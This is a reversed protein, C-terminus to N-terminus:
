CLGGDWWLTTGDEVPHLQYLGGLQKAVIRGLHMDILMVNPAMHTARLRMSAAAAALRPQMAFAHQIARCRTGSSHDEKGDFSSGKNAGM